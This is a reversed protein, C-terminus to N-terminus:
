GTSPSPDSVGYRLVAYELYQDALTEAAPVQRVREAFQHLTEAPQRILALRAARADLAALSRRLSTSAVTTEEVEWRLWRRAIQVGWIILGSLITLGPITTLLLSVLSWGAAALGRLGGQMMRTRVIQLRLWFDDFYHMVSFHSAGEPVGAEPTAEVTVWGREPDFAEVWAHADANRAVWYGGTENREKAVFGTVYRAPVGEMRLLATAASAFYECHAAPRNLLFWRMPEEGQPVKVELSYTYRTHFWHEVAALKERPTQCGAFVEKALQVIQEDSALAPPLQLLSVTVNPSQAVEAKGAQSIHVEYNTVPLEPLSVAIQHEDLQLSESITELWATHLPAFIADVPTSPDKWIDMQAVIKGPQEQIQFLPNATRPTGPMHLRTPIVARFQSGASWRGDVYQDYAAGRLYGPAKEAYIRLAPWQSSQSQQFEVSGLRAQRNFGFGSMRSEPAQRNIFRELEDWHTRLLACGVWAAAAISVLCAMSLVTRLTTRAAIDWRHDQRAGYYATALMGFCIACAQYFLARWGSVYLDGSCVLVGTAFIPIFPSLREGGRRVLYEVAQLTLFWQALVHALPYQLFVRGYPPEHPAIAWKILFLGLLIAGALPKRGGPVALRLPSLWGVVALAVVGLPFAITESFVALLVAELVILILAIGEHM